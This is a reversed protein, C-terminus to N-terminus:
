IYQEQKLHVQSARFKAPNSYETYGSKANAVYDKTALNGHEDRKYGIGNANGIAAQHHRIFKEIADLSAKEDIQGNNKVLLNNMVQKVPEGTKNQPDVWVFAIAENGLDPRNKRLEENVLIERLFAGAEQKMKLDVYDKEGLASSGAYLKDLDQHTAHYGEHALTEIQRKYSARSDIEMRSNEANYDTFELPHRKWVHIDKAWKCDRLEQLTTVLHPTASAAEQVGKRATFDNVNFYDIGPKAGPPADAPHLRALSQSFTEDLNDRHVQAILVGTNLGNGSSATSDFFELKSAQGKKQMEAIVEPTLGIHTASEHKGLKHPKQMEDWIAEDERTRIVSPRALSESPAKIKSAELNEETNDAMVISAPLRGGTYAASGYLDPGTGFDLGEPLAKQARLDGCTKFLDQVSQSLQRASSAGFDQQEQTKFDELATM